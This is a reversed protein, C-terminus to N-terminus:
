RSTSSSGAEGSVEARSCAFGTSCPSTSGVTRTTRDSSSRTRRTFCRRTSSSRRNCRHPIRIAEAGAGELFARMKPQQRQLGRLGLRATVGCGVRATRGARPERQRRRTRDLLKREGGGRGRPPQRGEQHQRVQLGLVARPPPGEHHAAPCHAARRLAPRALADRPREEHLRRRLRQRLHAELHHGRQVLGSHRWLKRVFCIMLSSWRPAPSITTPRSDTSIWRPNLAGEPLAPCDPLHHNLSWGARIDAHEPATLDVTETAPDLSEDLAIVAAAYPQAEPGLTGHKLIHRFQEADHHIRHVPM